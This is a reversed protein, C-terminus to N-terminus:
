TEARGRLIRWVRQAERALDELSGENRVVVDARAVLEEETLQRSMRADVDDISMGRQRVLRDRRHDLPATVVILLDCAADIGLEVILAADIVVVADSDRLRDLEDAMRRMIEPHVIANLTTLKRPDEFVLGALRKRDIEMSGAVLIEEGFTEVVQNWAPKGPELAERGFEDADLV